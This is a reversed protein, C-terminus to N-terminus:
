FIKSFGFNQMNKSVADNKLKIPIIRMKLDNM